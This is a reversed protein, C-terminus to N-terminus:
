AWEKEATEVDGASAFRTGKKWRGWRRLLGFHLFFSCSSSLSHFARIRRSIVPADPYKTGGREDFELRPQQQQKEEERVEEWLTTNCLYSYTTSTYLRCFFFDAKKGNRQTKYFSCKKLNLSGSQWDRKLLNEKREAIKILTTNVKPLKITILQLAIQHRTIVIYLFKIDEVPKSVPLFNCIWFTVKSKSYRPERTEIALSQM